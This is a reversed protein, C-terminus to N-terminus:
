ASSVSTPPSSPRFPWQLAIMLAAAPTLHTVMRSLTVNMLDDRAWITVVMYALTIV